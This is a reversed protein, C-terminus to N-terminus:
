FISCKWFRKDMICLIIIMVPNKIMVPTFIRLTLYAASQKVKITNKEFNLSDWDLGVMEGRRLGGLIGLNIIALTQLKSIDNSVSNSFPVVNGYNPRKEKRKRYNDEAFEL